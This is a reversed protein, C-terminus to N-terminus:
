LRGLVQGARGQRGGTCLACLPLAAPLNHASAVARSGHQCVRSRVALEVGRRNRASCAGLWSHRPQLCLWAAAAAGPAQAGDGDGQRGGARRVRRRGHQCSHGQWSLQGRAARDAPGQRGGRRRRVCQAAGAARGSAPGPPPAHPRRRPTSWTDCPRTLAAHGPQAHTGVWGGVPRRALATAQAIHGQLRGARASGVRFAELVRMECVVCCM